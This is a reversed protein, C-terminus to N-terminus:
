AGEKVEVKSDVFVQLDRMLADLDDIHCMSDCIGLETDLISEDCQTPVSVGHEEFVKLADPFVELINKVTTEETILM